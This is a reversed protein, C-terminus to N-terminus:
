ISQGSLILKLCEKGESGNVSRITAVKAFKKGCYKKSVARIAKVKKGSSSSAPLFDVNIGQVHHITLLTEALGRVTEEIDTLGYATYHALTPTWVQRLPPHAPDLLHMSLALSAASVRSPEVHAFKYDVLTLEMVYKALGHIDGDVLGAKSCRRLFNIPLPRGLDFDLTKLIRIEMQLIESQKYAKDTIYVFDDVEPPYMEEYKAAVLMATVGVLQLQKTSISAGEEQLFRDLIAVTLYLTEQILSFQQHVEILWDVLFNRMRPKIPGVKSGDAGLYGPRVAQRQELIRMYAYIENVYEPLMQPNGVDDGDIDEVPAVIAAAVDAMDIDSAPLLALEEQEETEMPEDLEENKKLKELSARKAKRELSPRLPQQTPAPVVKTQKLNLNQLSTTGRQKTLRAPKQILDKTPGAAAPKNRQQNVAINGLASRVGFAKSAVAGPKTAGKGALLMNEANESHVATSRLQRVHTAM